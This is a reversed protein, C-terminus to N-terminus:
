TMENSRSKIVRIRGIARVPDVQNSMLMRSEKTEKINGLKDLLGNVIRYSKEYSSLKNM